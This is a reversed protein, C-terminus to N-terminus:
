AVPPAFLLARVDALILRQMWTALVLAEQVGACAFQAVKTDPAPGVLVDITLGADPSSPQAPADAVTRPLAGAYERTQLAGPVVRSSYAGVCTAPRCDRPGHDAPDRRLNRLTQATGRLM